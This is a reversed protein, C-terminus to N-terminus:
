AHKRRRMLLGAIGLAGLAATTPEPTAPADPEDVPAAGFLGTDADANFVLSFGNGEDNLGANGTLGTAYTWILGDIEVSGAGAIHIQRLLEYESANYLLGAGTHTSVDYLSKVEGSTLGDDWIAADSLLGTMDEGGFSPNGGVFLPSTM